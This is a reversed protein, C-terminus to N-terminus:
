KIKVPEEGMEALKKLYKEPDKKVENICMGCCVYMRKGNYDVFLDKNIPNGMVPCTKQPVTGSASSTNAMTADKKMGKHGESSMESHKVPLLEPTQGMDELKKIYKAPDKKFTGICGGCCFYVRKGEYDAYVSKDIEGGMVPCTKQPVHAPTMSKLSDTGAHAFLNFSLVCVAATQVISKKLSIM